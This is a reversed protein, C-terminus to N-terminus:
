KLVYRTYRLSESTSPHEEVVNIHYRIYEAVVKSQSSGSLQESAATESRIQLERPLLSDDIEWDDHSTDTGSQTM